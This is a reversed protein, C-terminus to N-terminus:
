HPKVGKKCCAPLKSYAKEEAIMDDADYGIKTVAKKLKDKDTRATKYVVKLVKTESDLVASKVGKEFAMYKEIREKCMGCVASTKISLTDTTRAKQSFVPNEIGMMLFAMFVVISFIKFTKM